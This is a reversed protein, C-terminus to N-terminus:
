KATIKYCPQYEDANLKMRKQKVFSALLDDIASCLSPEGNLVYPGHAEIQALGNEKVNGTVIGSFARRLNAALLHKDQCVSLDLEAMSQHSVEFPKQFLEDIHLSWNFHFADDIAKRYSKVHQLGDQMHRAVAIPDDIIIEYLQAVDDGLTNRIFRDIKKFYQECNKNGTFVLPFPMNRNKEDLLVGLIYLIEEMTGVGGPFIIIGHGLRVFSELRKEIDPMIILENVIANPSEAAIIGPETIGVFRGRRYRQKSQGILAGKMPGKMAGPGCGTIINLGRLGLRYGVNKCYEYEERSIAHGGWCVVLNPEVGPKIAKANRMINFIADTISDPEDFNFDPNYRLAQDLFLIDRLVSFLHEKIGQIMQGDVFAESPANTIKLKVGRDRQVVEIEFKDLLANVVRIDDNHELSTLVALACKKFLMYLESQNSERMRKIELHSLTNDDNNPYIITDILESL